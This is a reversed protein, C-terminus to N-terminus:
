VGELSLDESSMSAFSVDSPDLEMTVPNQPRPTTADSTASSESASTASTVSASTVSASTVSSASSMLAMSREKERPPGMSGAATRESREAGKYQVYLTNLPEYRLITKNMVGRLYSAELFRKNETAKRILPESVVAGHMLLVQMTLADGALTAKELHQTLEQVSHPVLAKTVMARLDKDAIARQILRLSRQEDRLPAPICAYEMMNRLLCSNRDAVARAMDVSGNYPSQVEFDGELSANQFPTGKQLMQQLAKILLHTFVHNGQDVFEPSMVQLAVAAANEPFPHADAGSQGQYLKAMLLVSSDEGFLAAHRLLTDRDEWNVVAQVRQRKADPGDHYKEMDACRRRSNEPNPDAQGDIVFHYNYCDNQTVPEHAPANGM